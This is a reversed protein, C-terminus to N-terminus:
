QIDLSEYVIQFVLRYNDPVLVHITRDENLIASEITIKEGMITYSSQLSQSYIVVSFFAFVITFFIKRM